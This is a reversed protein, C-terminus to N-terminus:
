RRLCALGIWSNWAAADQPRIVVARQLNEFAADYKGSQLGIVGLLHWADAIQADVAVIQRCIQEAESLRGDRLCNVAHQLASGHGNM